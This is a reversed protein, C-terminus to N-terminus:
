AISTALHGVAYGKPRVLASRLIKVSEILMSVHNMLAFLSGCRGASGTRGHDGNERVEQRIDSDGDAVGRTFAPAHSSCAGISVLGRAAAEAAALFRQRSANCNRGQSPMGTGPALLERNFLNIPHSLGHM